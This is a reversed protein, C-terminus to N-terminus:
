LHRRRYTRRQESRRRGARGTLREPSAWLSPDLSRRVCASFGKSIGPNMGACTHRGCEDDTMKSKGNPARIVGPALRDRRRLCADLTRDSQIGAKAPIVGIECQGYSLHAIVFPWDAGPNRSECSHGPREDDTMKSKCNVAAGCRDPALPALSRCGTEIAFTFHRIILGGRSEQKRLFSGTPDTRRRRISGTLRHRGAGVGGGPPM